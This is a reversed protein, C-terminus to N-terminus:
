DPMIYPALKRFIEDTVLPILKMEEVTTFGKHQKRYSCVLGALKGRMYPHSSIVNFSDTNLHIRRFPISDSLLIQGLLSQYLSDTIGWVETLQDLSSFGGLKERYRVIRSALVPGIGRLMTMTTSDSKSFDVVIQKRAPKKEDRTKIMTDPLAIFPFLTEYEAPSICYMKQFDKRTKFKGGHAVYNKIMSIQKDRLGIKRFDSESTTNPDFRFLSAERKIESIVTTSKVNNNEIQAEILQRVIKADPVPFDGGTTKLYYLVLIQAILIFALFLSGRRERASFNFYELLPSRIKKKKMHPM